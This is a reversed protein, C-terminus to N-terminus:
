KQQKGKLIAEEYNKKQEEYWKNWGDVKYSCQHYFGYNQVVIKLIDTISATGSIEMQQLEKCKEVLAPVAEPWKPPEVPAYRPGFLSCGSLFLAVLLIFYKM